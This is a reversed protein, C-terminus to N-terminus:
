PIESKSEASSSLSQLPNPIEQFKKGQEVIADILADSAGNFERWADDYLKYTVPKKEHTAFVSNVAARKTDLAQLAPEIEPFYFRTLMWLTAHASFDIRDQHDVILENMSSKSLEGKVCKAQLMYVSSHNKIYNDAAIFLEEAKKQKYLFTEKKGSLMFSVFAAVVGSLVITLISQLM